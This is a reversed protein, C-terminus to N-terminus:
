RIDFFKSRSKAGKILRLKAPSIGLKFVLAKIAAKNIAAKNALNQEAKEKVRIEFSNESKRVVSEKKSDPFVKVNIFM